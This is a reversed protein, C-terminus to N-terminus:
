CFEAMCRSRCRPFYNEGLWGAVFPIGSLWFLVHLNAWLVPGCVKWVAHLMHHHNHRHIGGRELARASVPRAHM